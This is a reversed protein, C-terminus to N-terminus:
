RLQALSIAARIVRPWSIAKYLRPDKLQNILPLKDYVRFIVSVFRATGQANMAIESMTWLSIAKFALRKKPIRSLTLQITAFIMRQTEEM